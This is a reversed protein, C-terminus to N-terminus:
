PKIAEDGFTPAGKRKGNGYVREPQLLKRAEEDLAKRAAEIEAPTPDNCISLRMSRKM